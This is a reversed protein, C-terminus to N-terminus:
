QGHIRWTKIIVDCKRFGGQKSAVYLGVNKQGKTDKMV